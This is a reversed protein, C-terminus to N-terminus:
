LLLLLIDVNKSFYMAMNHYQKHRKRFVLIKKMLPLSDVQEEELEDNTRGKYDSSLKPVKVIINASNKNLPMESTFKKNPDVTLNPNIFKMFKVFENIPDHKLKTKEKSILDLRKVLRGLAAKDNITKAEQFLKTHENMCQEILSLYSKGNLKGSQYSNELTKKNNYIKERTEKLYVLLRQDLDKRKLGESLYDIESNIILFSQIIGPNSFKDESEIMSPIPDKAPIPRTSPPKLVTNKIPNSVPNQM